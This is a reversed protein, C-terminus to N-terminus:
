NINEEFISKENINSNFILLDNFIDEKLNNSNYTLNNDEKYSINPNIAGQNLSNLYALSALNFINSQIINLSPDSL